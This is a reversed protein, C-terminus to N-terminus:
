RQLAEKAIRIGHEWLLTRLTSISIRDKNVKTFELLNDQPITIISSNESNKLRTFVDKYKFRFSLATTAEDYMVFLYELREAQFESALEVEESLEQRVTKKISTEFDVFATETYDFCGGVLHVKNAYQSVSNSRETFYYNKNIPDFGFVGIGVTNTGPIHCKFKSAFRDLKYEISNTFVVLSDKRVHIGNCALHFGNFVNPNQLQESAWFQEIEKWRSTLQTLDRERKEFKIKELPIDFYM